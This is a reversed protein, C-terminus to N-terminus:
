LDNKDCLLKKLQKAWPQQRNADHLCSLSCAYRTTFSRRAKQRKALREDVTTLQGYAKRAARFDLRTV